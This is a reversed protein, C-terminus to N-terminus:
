EYILVGEKNVISEISGNVDKRNDFDEIDNVLIDMRTYLNKEVLTKRIQYIIEKMQNFSIIKNNAVIYFDIDSDNNAENRACSGFVYIKNTNVIELIVKVIKDQNKIIKNNAM